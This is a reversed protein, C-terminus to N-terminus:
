KGFLADLARNIAIRIDDAETSGMGEATTTFLVQKSIPSIFQITIEITYGLFVNRRGSEGYNIILTRELLDQQIENLIIFGKKILYGSIIDKPNITKSNSIYVDNYKSRSSSIIAETEPVIAYKYNEINDKKVVKAPQLTTCSALFFLIISCCLFYTKKM